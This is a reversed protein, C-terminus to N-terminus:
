ASKALCGVRSSNVVYDAAGWKARSLAFLVLQGKWGGRKGKYLRDAIYPQGYKINHSQHAM